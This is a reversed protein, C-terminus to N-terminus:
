RRRQYALVAENNGVKFLVGDKDIYFCKKSYKKEVTDFVRFGRM